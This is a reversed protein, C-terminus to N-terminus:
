RGGWTRIVFKESLRTWDRSNLTLDFRVEEEDRRGEPDYIICPVGVAVLSDAEFWKEGSEPFPSIGVSKGSFMGITEEIIDYDRRDGDSYARVYALLEDTVLNKVAYYIFRAM